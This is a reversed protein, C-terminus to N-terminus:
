FLVFVFSRHAWYKFAGSRSVMRLSVIVYSIESLPSSMLIMSASSASSRMM